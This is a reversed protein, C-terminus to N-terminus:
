RRPPCRPESPAVEANGRSNNMASRLATRWSLPEPTCNWALRWISIALAYGSLNWALRSSAPTPARMIATDTSVGAATM